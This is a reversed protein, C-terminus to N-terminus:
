NVRLCINVQLPFTVLRHLIAKQHNVIIKRYAEYVTQIQKLNNLCTTRKGAERISRSASMILSALISVVACVVVVEVVSFRKSRKLTKM